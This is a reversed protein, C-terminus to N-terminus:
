TTPIAQIQNEHNKWINAAKYADVSGAPVYIPYTTKPISDDRTLTPPIVAKCTLSSLATNPSFVNLDITQVGSGIVVTRLNPNDSFACTGIFTVTDSITVSTLSNCYRWASVGIKTIGSPVTVSTFGTNAFAFTKIETVTNPITISTLSSCGYFCYESISTISNPLTVATLSSCGNFASNDISTM